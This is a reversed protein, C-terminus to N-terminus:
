RTASIEEPPASRSKLYDRLLIIPALSLGGVTGIGRVAATAPNFPPVMSAASFGGELASLVAGTRDGQKYREVADAFSLGTGLGGLAGLMIPAKSAKYGAGTLFRSLPGRREKALREAEAVADAYNQERTSIKGALRASESAQARMERAALEAASRRERSARVQAAAEQQAQLIRQAEAEREAFAATQRGLISSEREAQQAAEIEALREAGVEAPVAIGESSYLKINPDIRRGAARREEELRMLTNAGRETKGSMSEIQSILSAPLPEPAGTRGWSGIAYNQAGSLKPQRAAAEAAEAKALRDTISEITPPQMGAAQRSAARAQRLEEAADKLENNASVLSEQLDAPSQSQGRLLSTDRVSNLKGEAERVRQEARFVDKESVEVPPKPEMFLKEAVGKAAGLGATSAVEEGYKNAIDKVRDLFPKEEEEKKGQKPAEYISKTTALAGSLSEGYNEDEAYAGKKGSQLGKVFQNLDSKSNLAGPFNRKIMHAYYDGFAEPDEFNLYKEGKAEKGGGAFDKINGLNHNGVISTGWRTELGWQSLLIDSSVGIKDGVEEAIPAYEEIFQQKADM